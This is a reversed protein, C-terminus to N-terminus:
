RVIARYQVSYRSYHGAPALRPTNSISSYATTPTTTYHLNRFGINSAAACWGCVLQWSQGVSSLHKVLKREMATLSPHTYDTGQTYPAM